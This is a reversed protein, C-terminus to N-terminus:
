PDLPERDGGSPSAPVPRLGAPEASPDTEVYHKLLSLKNEWFREYYALWRKLELLPDADLRYRTERGVKREQVLGAEALIRLHKSVATRSMPFRGSIEKLPLERGGLLQLLERRTPDAIAQFVDHKASAAETM